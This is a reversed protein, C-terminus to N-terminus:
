RRFQAIRRRYFTPAFQWLVQRTVHDPSDKSSALQVMVHGAVVAPQLTAETVQGLAIHFTLM